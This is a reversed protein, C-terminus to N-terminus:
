EIRGHFHGKAYYKSVIEGWGWAFFAACGRSQAVEDLYFYKRILGGSSPASKERRM